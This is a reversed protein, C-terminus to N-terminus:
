VMEDGTAAAAESQLSEVSPEAAVAETRASPRPREEKDTASGLSSAGMTAGNDVPAPVRPVSSSMTSAAVAAAM